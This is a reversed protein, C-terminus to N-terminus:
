GRRKSSWYPPISRTSLYGVWRKLKASRKEGSPVLTCHCAISDTFLRFIAGILYVRWVELCLKIVLLEQEFPKLQESFYVARLDVGDKLQSLVGGAGFSSVDTTVGYVYVLLQFAAIGTSENIGTSRSNLLNIGVGILRDKLPDNIPALM